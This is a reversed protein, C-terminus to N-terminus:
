PPTIAFIHMDFAFDVPLLIFIFELEALRLPLLFPTDAHLLCFSHFFLFSSFYRFFHFRPEHRMLHFRLLAAFLLFLFEFCIFHSAAAPLYRLSFAIATPL